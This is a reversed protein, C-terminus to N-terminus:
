KSFHKLFINKIFKLCSIAYVCVHTQISSCQQDDTPIVGRHDTRYSRHHWYHPYETIFGVLRSSVTFTKRSLLFCVLMINPLLILSKKELNIAYFLPFTIKLSHFAPSMLSVPWSLKKRSLFIPSFSTVFYKINNIVTFFAMAISTSLSYVETLCQASHASKVGWQSVKPFIM